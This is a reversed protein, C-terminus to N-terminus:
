DIGINAAIFTALQEYGEGTLHLGDDSFWEPHLALLGPWDLISMSEGAADILSRAKDAYREPDAHHPPIWEVHQAGKSRLMTVLEDIEDPFSGLDAGPNSGLGVVVRAPVNTRLDIQELAWPVTRGVEALIEPEWGADRLKQDLGGFDRAGVMISDGILLVPGHPVIIAAGVRSPSASICGTLLFAAAALAALARRFRQQRPM